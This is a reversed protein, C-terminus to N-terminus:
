NTQTVEEKLKGNIYDSSPRYSVLPANEINLLYSKYQEMFNERSVLDVGSPVIFPEVIDLGVFYLKEHQINFLRESMEGKISNPGFNTLDKGGTTFSLLAKKGRLNGKEYVGPGYAFGYALVRDFWGKLIAPTETWWMPYQFIIYDAWSIKEQELVIDQAFTGNQSAKYQERLYNFNDMDVGDVFDDQDAAAKFKMKYLDSVMVNHGAETLVSIAKDKLSANFSTKSPHAFVILFNM